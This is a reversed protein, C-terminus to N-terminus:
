NPHAKLLFDMSDSTVSEGCDSIVISDGSESSYEGDEFQSFCLSRLRGMAESVLNGSVRNVSRHAKSRVSSLFKVRNVALEASKNRPVLSTFRRIYNRSARM